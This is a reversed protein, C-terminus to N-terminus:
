GPPLPCAPRPPSETVTPNINEGVSFQQRLPLCLQRLRLAEGQDNRALLPCSMSPAAGARWSSTKFKSPVNGYLSLIIIIDKVSRDGQTGIGAREKGEQPSLAAPTPPGGVRLCGGWRVHAETWLGEHAVDAEEFLSVEGGGHGEGGEGEEM